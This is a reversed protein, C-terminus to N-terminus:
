RRSLLPQYPVAASRRGIPPQGRRAPPPVGRDSLIASTTSSWKGPRSWLGADDLELGYTYEVFANRSQTDWMSWDQAPNSDRPFRAQTGDVYDLVLAGWM